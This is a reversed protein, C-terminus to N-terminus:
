EHCVSVTLYVSPLAEGVGHVWAPRLPLSGSANISDSRSIEMSMASSSHDAIIFAGSAASAWLRLAAARAATHLAAGCGPPMARHNVQETATARSSSAHHPASRHATSSGSLDATSPRAALFIRNASHLTPSPGGGPDIRMSVQGRADPRQVLPRQESGSRSTVWRSAFCSWPRQPCAISVQGLGPDSIATAATRLATAASTAAAALQRVETSCSLCIVIISAQLVAFSVPGELLEGRENQVRVYVDLAPYRGAHQIFFALRHPQLLPVFYGYSDAPAGCTVTEIRREVRV